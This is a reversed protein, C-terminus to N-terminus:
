RSVERVVRFGAHRRCLGPYIPYRQASRAFSWDHYWDGGRVVKDKGSEPGRPDVQPADQPPAFWDATWEWVNGHMDHLGFANARFSGVPAAFLHGDSGAVAIRDPFRVKAPADMINGMETVKEPDDGNAYATTSGGRCAYEWEAETPVRYTLKEKETLWRCFAEADHFSVNVVPHEDTQAFGTFQWSYKKDPGDLKQAAEDYGYGGRIGREADTRYQTAEVFKRFQGRTVERQGMFFDRMLRVRRQPEDARRGNEEGPSGMMFEGAPIRVLKLGISNEVVKPKLGEMTKAYRAKMEEERWTLFEREVRDREGPQAAVAAPITIEGFTIGEEKRNVSTVRGENVVLTVGVNAEVVPVGNEKGLKLVAKDQSEGRSGYSPIVLFRAGDLALIRALQPNWRENCIVIGCRGYPTDFARSQAGLRNYWWNPHSGEALQMKHHSGCINGSADIFVACNFVEDEIREAFGFVLCMELEHALEQFRRIVPDTMALAVDKMAEPEAKGAIIENVVYGELVGEPAVAIKAGGKRAERFAKELRGANGKLDFKVPVFSIAAVRVTTGISATSEAPKLGDAAFQAGAFALGAFLSSLSKMMRM